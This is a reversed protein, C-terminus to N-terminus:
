RYRDPRVGSGTGAGAAGTTTNRGSSMQSEDISDVPLVLIPLGSNGNLEEQRIKVRDFIASFRERMADNGFVGNGGDGCDVNFDLTHWLNEKSVQVSKNCQDFAEDLNRRLRNM